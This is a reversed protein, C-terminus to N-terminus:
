NGIGVPRNFKTCSHGPVYIPKRVRIEDANPIVLSFIMSKETVKGTLQNQGQEDGLM